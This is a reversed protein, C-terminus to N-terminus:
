YSWHYDASVNWCVTPTRCCPTFGVLRHLISQWLPRTNTVEWCDRNTSDFLLLAEFADYM